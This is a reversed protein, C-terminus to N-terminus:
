KIQEKLRQIDCQDCLKKKTELDKVTPNLSGCRACKWGRKQREKHKHYERVEKPLKYTKVELETMSM